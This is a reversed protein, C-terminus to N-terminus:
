KPLEKFRVDLEVAAGADVDLLVWSNVLVKNCFFTNLTPSVTSHESVTNFFFWNPRLCVRTSTSVSMGQIIYRVGARSSRPLISHCWAVGGITEAVASSVKVTDRGPRVKTNMSRTFLALNQTFWMSLTIELNEEESTPRCPCPCPPRVLDTQLTCTEKRNNMQTM